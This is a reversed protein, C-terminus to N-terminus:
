NIYSIANCSDCTYIKISETDRTGRIGISDVGAKLRRRDLNVRDPWADRAREELYDVIV